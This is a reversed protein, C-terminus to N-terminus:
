GGKMGGAPRFFMSGIRRPSKTMIAQGPRAQRSIDRASSRATFPLLLALAPYRAVGSYRPRQRVHCDNGRERWSKGRAPRDKAAFTQDEAALQWDEEVASHTLGRKFAACASRVNGGRLISRSSMAGRAHQLGSGYLPCTKKGPPADSRDIGGTRRGM